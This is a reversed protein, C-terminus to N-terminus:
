VQAEGAGVTSANEKQQAVEKLGIKVLENLQYNLSRRRTAALQEAESKVEDDLRLPFAMKQQKM